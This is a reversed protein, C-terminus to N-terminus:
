KKRKYQEYYRKRTEEIEKLSQRDEFYVAIFSIIAVFCLIVFVYFVVSTLM